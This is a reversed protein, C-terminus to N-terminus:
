SVKNDNIDTKARSENNANSLEEAQKILNSLKNKLDLLDELLNVTKDEVIDETSKSDNTPKDKKQFTM